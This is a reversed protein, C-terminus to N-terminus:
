ASEREIRNQWWALTQALGRERDYRPHWGAEDRLRGVNAVLLRPEDPATAVAGLQVLDRRGLLDALGFILEQLRVPDGSAINVAGAVDSELLAVFAGAVDEVHLFDRIQNGHSCLAPQGRVLSAAVSSVLRGPQEYPGYLFFVRGWAVSMGTQAALAELLARLADKCRGYTTAPALPTVAESCYGYRWDYEACTGAAVLRRGGAAAFSEALALSARVWRFNEPASWYKGPETYWALHLLHTPRVAEVLAERQRDDLLDACHWTIGNPGQPRARTSVAHVDYGGGALLPLCHRGIFGGAGTVLVRKM